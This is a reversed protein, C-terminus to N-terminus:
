ATLLGFAKPNIVEYQYAVRAKCFAGGVVNADGNGDVIVPESRFAVPDTCYDPHGAVGYLAKASSGSGINGTVLNTVKVNFGAIQAIFGKKVLDQAMDGQRITKNSSMIKALGTGNVAIYRGDMPVGNDTMAGALDMLVEYVDDTGVSKTTGTLGYRPDTSGYANGANDLGQAGKILCNIASTNMTKELGYAVKELADKKEDYSAAAINFGDLYLSVFKDNNITVTVYKNGDYTVANSSLSTKNYDSVTAEDTVPVLVAAARADGVYKKAFLGNAVLQSRLKAAVIQGYETKPTFTM